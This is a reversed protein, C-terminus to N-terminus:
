PISAVNVALSVRARHNALATYSVSIHRYSDTFTGNKGPKVLQRLLLTEAANIDFSGNQFAPPRRLRVLLGDFLDGENVGSVFSEAEYASFPKADNGIPRRYEISYFTNWGDIPIRIERYENPANLEVAAIDVSSNGRPAHFVKSNDIWNAYNKELASNDRVGGGGMPTFRDDLDAIVCGDAPNLADPGVVDPYCDWMGAHALNITAHGLEHLLVSKLSPGEPGDAVNNDTALQRERAHGVFAARLKSQYTYRGGYGVPLYGAVLIVFAQHNDADFALEAEAAELVARVIDGQSCEYGLPYGLTYDIADCYNSADGPLTLVHSFKTNQFFVKQMSSDRFAQAFTRYPLVPGPPVVVGGGSVSGVVTAVDDPDIDISPADAFRAFLLAVNLSGSLPYVNSRPDPPVFVVGGLASSHQSTGGVAVPPPAGGVLFVLTLALLRARGSFDGRCALNIANKRLDVRDVSTEM